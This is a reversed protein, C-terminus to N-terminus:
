KPQNKKILNDIKKAIAIVREEQFRKGVLQVCVPVGDYAEPDYDSQIQADLDDIPKFASYKQDVNKDVSTVPFICSPADISM